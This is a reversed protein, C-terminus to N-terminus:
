MKEFENFDNLKMMRIGMGDYITMWTSLEVGEWYINDYVKGQYLIGIHKKTESITFGRKRLTGNLVRDERLIMHPSVCTLAVIESRLRKGDLEKKLAKAFQLCQFFGFKKSVGDAIGVVNFGM